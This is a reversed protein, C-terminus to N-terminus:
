YCRSCGYPVVSGGMVQVFSCCALCFFFSFLFPESHLQLAVVCFFVNEELGVGVGPLWLLAEGTMERSLFLCVALDSHCKPCPRHCSPAAHASTISGRAVCLSRPNWVRLQLICPSLATM